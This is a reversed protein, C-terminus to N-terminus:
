RTEIQKITAHLTYQSQEALNLELPKGEVSTRPRLYTESMRKISQWITVEQEESWVGQADQVRIALRVAIVSQSSQNTIASSLKLKGHEYRPASLVVDVGSDSLQLVPRHDGVTITVGSLTPQAIVPAALVLPTLESTQQPQTEQPVYQWTFDDNLQIYRGDKLQIYRGDKLQVTEGAWTSLSVISAALILKKM